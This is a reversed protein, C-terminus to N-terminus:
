IGVAMLHDERHPTHAPAVRVSHRLSVCATATATTGHTPSRLFHWAVVAKVRCGCESAIRVASRSVNWQPVTAVGTQTAPPERKGRTPPPEDVAVFYEDRCSHLVWLM